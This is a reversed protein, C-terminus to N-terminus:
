EGRWLGTARLLAEARNSASAHIVQFGWEPGHFSENLRGVYETMELASLHSEAEHIANLDNLYDPIARIEGDPMLEVKVKDNSTLIAEIQEISPKCKPPDLIGCWKALAVRQEEPTM